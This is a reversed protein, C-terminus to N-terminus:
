TKVSIFREFVENSLLRGRSTLSIRRGRRKILGEGVCEDVVNLMQSVPGLGFKHKVEDVDVGGNLRLGM